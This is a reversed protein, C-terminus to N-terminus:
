MEFIQLSPFFEFLILQYHYLSFIARGSISGCFELGHDSVTCDYNNTTIAVQSDDFLVHDFSLSWPNFNQAAM